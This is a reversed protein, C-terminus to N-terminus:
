RLAKSITIFGKIMPLPLDLTEAYFEPDKM